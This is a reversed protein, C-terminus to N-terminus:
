PLVKVIASACNRKVKSAGFSDEFILHTEVILLVISSIAEFLGTSTQPIVLTDNFFFFLKRQLCTESIGSSITISFLAISKNFSFGFPFRKLLNTLRSNSLNVLFKLSKVFCGKLLFLRLIFYNM